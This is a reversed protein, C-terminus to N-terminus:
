MDAFFDGAMAIAAGKKAIQRPQKRKRGDEGESGARSFGSRKSAKSAAVSMGDDSDDSDDDSDDGAPRAGKVKVKLKGGGSSSGGKAVADEERDAGGEAEEAEEAEKADEDEDEDELYGLDWLKITQDHACSALTEGKADLALAEITAENEHEGVVGIVKNPHVGVLRILGDASGTLVADEGHPLLCDVSAPHGLLRDSVDGFNGWSFIGVVGTQTGCLLKKGHKVRAISLLEDDQEDSRAWLRGARLDFVSLRGDGGAVCLTHKNSGREDYLMDAVYDTNEHFSLAATKARLDWCTVAGDDDGTAVGVDGLRVLSNITAAHAERKRWIPKNTEIDRRQLSCDGGASFLSEGDTSFMAARCAEKHPQASWRVSTTAKPKKSMYKSLAEDEEEEEGETGGGRMWEYLKVQGTVLGATLLPRSPHVDLCFPQSKLKITALPSDSM